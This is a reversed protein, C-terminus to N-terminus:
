SRVCAEPVTSCNSIASQEVAAAAIAISEAIEVEAAAPARRTDEMVSAAAAAVVEM